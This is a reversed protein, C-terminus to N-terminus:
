GRREAPPTRGPEGYWRVRRTLVRVGDVFACLALHFRYLLEMLGYIELFKEVSLNYEQTNGNQRVHFIVVEQDFDWSIHAVPSGDTTRLNLAAIIECIRQRVEPSRM